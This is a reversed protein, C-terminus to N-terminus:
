FPEPDVLGLNHSGKNNSYDFIGNPASSDIQKDDKTAAGSAMSADPMEAM